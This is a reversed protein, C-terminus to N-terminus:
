IKVIESVHTTLKMKSREQLTNQCQIIATENCETSM